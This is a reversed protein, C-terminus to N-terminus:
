LWSPPARDFPSHSPPRNAEQARAVRVSPLHENSARLPLGFVGGEQSPSTPSLLFVPILLPWTGKKSASRLYSPISGSSRRHERLACDRVGRARALPVDRCALPHSPSFAARLPLDILGWGQLSLSCAQLSQVYRGISATFPLRPKERLSLCLPPDGQSWLSTM